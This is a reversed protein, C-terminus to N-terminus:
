PAGGMLERLKRKAHFLRTRVTNEPAGVIAAVEAASREEIACLVLVVRQEIPLRDLGRQLEACLERRELEGDPGEVASPAPESSLREMMQRARIAARVHHKAKNVAIGVLLARPEVDSRHRHREFAGPAALFVDHVLDEAISADGLLRRAFARVVEHHRRYLTVLDTEDGARLGDIDTSGLSEREVGSWVAALQGQSTLLWAPGESRPPNPNV